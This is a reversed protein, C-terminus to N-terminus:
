PSSLLLDTLNTQEGRGIINRCFTKRHVPSIGYKLIAARHTKTAYGKHSAFQYEPFRKDLDIMIRDRIVKAIISAAAVSHCLSDGKILPMSKWLWEPTRNGDVIIFEPSQSLDSVACQMAKLTAQLINIRDIETESIIGAGISLAKKHILDFAIERQGPSLKKSDDVEEIFVHPPFIVAAAVVPGALPGRGAEDVGAVYQIGQDWYTKEISYDM